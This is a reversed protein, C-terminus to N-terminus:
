IRESAARASLTCPRTGESAIDASDAPRVSSAGVLWGHEPRPARRIWTVPQCGPSYILLAARRAHVSRDGTRMCKFNFRGGRIVNGHQSHAEQSGTLHSCSRVALTSQLRSVRLDGPRTNTQSLYTMAALGFSSQNQGGNFQIDFKVMSSVDM